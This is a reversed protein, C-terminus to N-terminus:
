AWICHWPLLSHCLFPKANGQSYVIILAGASQESGFHGWRVLMMFEFGKWFHLLLANTWICRWTAAILWPLTLLVLWYNEYHCFSEVPSCFCSFRLSLACLCRSLDQGHSLWSEKKNVTMIKRRKLWHKSTSQPHELLPVPFSNNIHWWSAEASWICVSRSAYHTVSKVWADMINLGRLAATPFKNHQTDGSLPSFFCTKLFSSSGSM